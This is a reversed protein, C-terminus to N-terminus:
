VKLELGKAVDAPNSEPENSTVKKAENAAKEVAAAIPAPEDNAKKAPRNITSLFDKLMQQRFRNVYDQFGKLFDQYQEKTVKNGNGLTLPLLDTGSTVDGSAPIQQAAPAGVPLATEGSVMKEQVTKVDAFFQKAQGQIQDRIGDFAGGASGYTKEIESFFRDSEKLFNELANPSLTALGDVSDLFANTTDPSINLSADTGKMFSGVPDISLSFNGKFTETVKSAVETFRSLGKQGMKVSVKQSLEYFLDFQFAIKLGGAGSSDAEETKAKEAEDTAPSSSDTTKEFVDTIARSSTQNAGTQGAKRGIGSTDPETSSWEPQKFLPLSKVDM